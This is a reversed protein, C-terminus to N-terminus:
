RVLKRCESVYRGASLAACRRYAAAAGRPDGLAAQAAGLVIWGESSGPELRVARQAYHEALRTEGTNLQAHAIHSLVVASDPRLALARLYADLADRHRGRAGLSEGAALLEDYTPGVVPAAKPAASSTDTPMVTAGVVPARVVGLPESAAPLPLILPPSSPGSDAGIPAAAPMVWQDYITYGAIAATFVAFIAASAFMARRAGHPMPAGVHDDDWVEIAQVKIASAFFAASLREHEHDHDHDPGLGHGPALERTESVLPARLSARKGREAQVARPARPRLSKRAPTKRLGRRAM